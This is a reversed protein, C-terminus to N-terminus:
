KEFKKALQMRQIKHLEEQEKKSLKVKKDNTLPFPKKPYISKPHKTFQLCHALAFLFYQGQNFARANDDLAEQKRNEIYADWYAWLDNPDDEWFQHPTM